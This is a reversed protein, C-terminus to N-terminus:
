KIEPQGANKLHYNFWRKLVDEPPQSYFKELDEGDNLLKSCQPYKKLKPNLGNAANYIAATHYLNANEDGATLEEPKAKTKAGLEKANDIVKQNRANCDEDALSDLNCKDDDM